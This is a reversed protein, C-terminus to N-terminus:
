ATVRRFELAWVWPNADWGFGRAANISDWARHFGDINSEGCRSDSCQYGGDPGSNIWGCDGCAECFSTGEAEADGESIDRVREVRVSEIELTIRSAWRPMFRASRVRGPNGWEPGTWNHREGDVLYEVPAWPAYYGADECKAAIERANNSDLKESTRWAERVWLRDGPVGYPCMAVASERDTADDPDLCRWWEPKVVRRTQTKRGEIIARVMPASFLIPREKM